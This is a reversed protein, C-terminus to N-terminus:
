NPVHGSQTVQSKAAPHVLSVREDFAAFIVAVAIVVGVLVAALQRSM